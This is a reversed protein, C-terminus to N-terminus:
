EPSSLFKKHQAALKEFHDLNANIVKDLRKGCYPCFKICQEASINIMMDPGGSRIKEVDPFAIGRSQLCFCLKDGLKKILISLGREGASKVINEFVICCYMRSLSVSLNWLLM